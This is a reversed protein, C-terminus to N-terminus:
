RLRSPAELFQNKTVSLASAIASKQYRVVLAEYATEDGALTLMVLTEDQQQNRYYMHVRRERSKPTGMKLRKDKLCLVCLFPQTFVFIKSFFKTAGKNYCLIFFFPPFIYFFFCGGTTEKKM